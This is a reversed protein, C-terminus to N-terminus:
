PRSVLQFCYNAYNVGNCGEDLDVAPSTGLCGTVAEAYQWLGSVPAHTFGCSGCSSPNCAPPNTVSKTCPEPTASWIMFCSSGGVGGTVVACNTHGNCPSCYLGPYLPFYGAGAWNYGSLYNAFGNWYSASLTSSGEEDLWCILTLNDPLFLPAVNGYASYLASAFTQADAQGAASTGSLRSQAPDIIAGIKKCNVDWASRCESIENSASVNFPSAGQVVGFYRVWFSPTGYKSVAGQGVADYIFAVSDFGAM